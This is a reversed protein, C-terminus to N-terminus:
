ESPKDKEVTSSTKQANFGSLKALRISSTPRLDASSISRAQLPKAPPRHGRVSGINGGIQHFEEIKDRSTLQTDGHICSGSMKCGSKVFGADDQEGPQVLTHEAWPVAACFLPPEDRFSRRSLGLELPMSPIKGPRTAASTRFSISHEALAACGDHLIGARALSTGIHTLEDDREFIRAKSM